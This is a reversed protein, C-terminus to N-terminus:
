TPDESRDTATTRDGSLSKWVQRCLEWAFLRTAVLFAVVGVGTGAALRVFPDPPLATRAHVLVALVVLSVLLPRVLSGLYDAFSLDTLRNVLHQSLVLFILATAAIAAAVGTVGYEAAYYLAPLLLLLSFM